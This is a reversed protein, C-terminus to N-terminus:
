NGGARDRRVPTGDPVVCILGARFRPGRRAGGKRTNPYHFRQTGIIRHPFGRLPSVVRVPWIERTTNLEMGGFFPV